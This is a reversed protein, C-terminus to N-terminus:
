PWSMLFWALSLPAILEAHLGKQVQAAAASAEFLSESVMLTMILCLVFVAEFTHDKGYKEPVAYREPKIIGRRVAAIICAVFVMTAAYDKLLSYLVGFVGGLGPFVFSESIGIIVLSISRISLILFGAFIMIHLVGALMYRPQRYQLLWIKLLNKLREPIRQLRPDPAALVLPALRLSIIYAFIAVGAIPILFSFIISPMTFIVAKAPSILASEM